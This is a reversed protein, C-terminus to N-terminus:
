ESRLAIMPDVKTARRAPLFSALLGVLIIVGSVSGYTLFDTATVGYLLSAMLRTLAYAGAMGVGVGILTLALGQGLVLRLVDLGRAGLAIRIGLERRRLMVSYNMVGYVGVAALALALGAFTMLLTMYFRRGSLSETLVQEMTRVSSLAQESDVAYVAKSLPQIFGEPDSATRAVFTIWPRPAQRFPLYMTSAAEDDLGRSKVDGVVGVIERPGQKEHFSATLRKGVPDEGPWFHRAMAESIIVVQPSGDRDRDEFPRGQKLPIGMASFYDPSVYRTQALPQESVPPAPRGEVTFPQKSGGGTLPITTTSGVSVVGPLARIQEMVRDHFALQQQPEPYRTSPLGVSLTLTNSVDFGPNVDQLKWFSRIMLGAGILLILSMAVECVVLAKRTRQRVSGAASRGTGQKLTEALENKSFQLAPAVGALVGAALSVLLTFGLAWADVGVEATNPLSGASLRVLLQGGWGALLLGLLGGVVSLLVSECLLQRVIRGRTAGLAIRLAIEKKRNAGRALMLNAVNACAILLVFGVASFLMLLALRVDGVLDEHLPIVVAGWGKNAEPYQQELRVSITSMEAQAQALSADQKLRAVVLYDHIARTQREEADWALPVWLEAEQPFEFGAPMIGVVTFSRSNLNVTRGVLNPDAGFARRWLGNGLVVVQDRGIQEEDPSFTRGKFAETRLVSFFDSSVAAGTVPVPDGNGGSLSLGAYGYIAMQEFARSQEKWDLYNGPSVSFRKMGPFSDQPPTHWVAVIREAEPYPLPRLLIGNVVSFIATNAGIGLALSLVAVVTFAPSKILTRVGYRMDQWVTGLFHGVRVERVREKVQDMGGLEILAARRAEVPKLGEAMKAEVLMELYADLEEALDRDLRERDFLSRRLSDLRPM